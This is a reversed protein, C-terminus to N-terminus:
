GGGGYRGSELRDLEWLITPMPFASERDPYAERWQDLAQRSASPDLRFATEGPLHVLLDFFEEVSLWDAPEARTHRWYQVFDGSPYPQHWGLVDFIPPGEWPSRARTQELLFVVTDGPPVWGPQDWGEDACGCGVTWPVGIFSSGAEVLRTGTEIRLIEFVQGRTDETAYDPVSLGRAHRTRRYPCCAM